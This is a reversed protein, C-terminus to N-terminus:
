RGAEPDPTPRFREPVDALVVTGLRLGAAYIRRVCRTCTLGHTIEIGCTCCVAKMEQDM